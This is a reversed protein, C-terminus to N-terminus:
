EPPFCVKFTNYCVADLPVGICRAHAQLAANLLEGPNWLAGLWICHPLGGSLWTRFFVVRQKYGALWQALPQQRRVPPYSAAAWVPPLVGALLAAATAEADPTSATCGCLAAACHALSRRLLAGLSAYRAVEHALVADFCATTSWVDSDEPTGNRRPPIESLQLDAPLAATVQECLTAAHADAQDATSPGGGAGGLRPQTALVADLLRHASSLQLGVAANNHLGCV